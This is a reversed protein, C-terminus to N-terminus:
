LERPIIQALEREHDNWFQSVHAATLECDSACPAALAILGAPAPGWIARAGYHLQTLAASSTLREGSAYIYAIVWRRKAADEAIFSAPSRWSGALRRVVSWAPAVSNRDNILEAGQTQRGYLNVYIEIRSTDMAYAARLEEVAGAFEPNWGDQAPLPGQWQGTLIPLAGLVPRADAAAGHSAGVIATAALLAVSGALGSPAIREATTSRQTRAPPPNSSGIRRAALVIAILLPVFMAYGFSFHEKAVLYHQMQTVHGAYIIVIVRIWNIVLASLVTVAILATFRPWRLRQM